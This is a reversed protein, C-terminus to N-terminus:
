SAAGDQREAHTISDLTDLVMGLEAIRLVGGDSRVTGTVVGGPLPAPMGGVVHTVLAYSRFSATDEGHEVLHLNTGNHRLPDPSGMRHERHWALVDDRGHLDARVFEEWEATGTDTRCTFHADDALLRALEDFDGADYSMWWRGMLAQVDAVAIPAM